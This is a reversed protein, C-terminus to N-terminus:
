SLTRANYNLPTVQKEGLKVQWIYEVDRNNESQFKVRVWYIDSGRPAADWSKFRLSPNRGQIMGAVTSHSLLLIDYAEREITGTTYKPENDDAPEADAAVGAAAQDATEDVLVPAPSPRREKAMRPAARERAAPVPAIPASPTMTYVQGADVTQPLDPLARSPREFEAPFPEHNEGVKQSLAPVEGALAARLETVRGTLRDRLSPVLAMPLGAALVFIILGGYIRRRTAYFRLSEAEAM